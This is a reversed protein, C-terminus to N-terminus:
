SVHINALTSIQPLLIGLHANREGRQKETHTYRKHIEPLNFSHNLFFITIVSFLLPLSHKSHAFCKIRLSLSFTCPMLPRYSRAANLELLLVLKKSLEWLFQM